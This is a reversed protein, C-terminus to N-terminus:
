PEPKAQAPPLLADWLAVSPGGGSSSGASALVVSSGAFCLDAGRGHCQLSASPTAAGGGGGPHLRWLCLLGSQEIAGFKEGCPSVRVSLVRGASPQKYRVPFTSPTM